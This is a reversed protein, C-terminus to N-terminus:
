AALELYKVRYVLAAGHTANWALPGSPGDSPIIWIREPLEASAIQFYDRWQQLCEELNEARTFLDLNDQENGAKVYFLIM